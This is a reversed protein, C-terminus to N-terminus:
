QPDDTKPAANPEAPVGPAPPVPNLEVEEAGGRTPDPLGVHPTQGVAVFLEFQAENYGVLVRILAERADILLEVSNITELPLGEGGRTRNVEERAGDVATQLRRQALRLQERRARSRVFADGVERGIQNQTLGRVAIARDREARRQKQLALNGMGLNQLTWYAMVDFDARGGLREWMTQGAYYQDSGGGGFAGGSAGASLTPLWPRAYEQRLRYDSASIDAARAAMEPRAVHAMAILQQVDYEPNVLEVLEIAGANTKLRWSPDLHLTRSLEAAAVVVEEQAQHERSHLLLAETRARNYDGVRGQGSKAFAATALVVQRLDDESHRFAELAGEAAVLDLYRTVVNLLQSNLIAHSESTRSSVVQGASLPAFIADGVHGFIRVAPIALTEAALTRAGGGFYLAQETLNRMQGFSTQLNGQHLHYNFGANLSPLMMSLAETRLALAEVIAQRGLAITPNSAEALRLATPLDILQDEGASPIVDERELGVLANATDNPDVDRTDTKQAPLPRDGALPDDEPLDVPRVLVDVPPKGLAVYLRFQAENYDLISDLYETRSRYLLRLSDVTELPRGELAAARTLDERFAETSAQIALECARIRAYRAHTAAYASAVQSRVLDLAILEEFDASRLRSATAQIMARNGVGLNRLTWYAMVDLDQRSRGQGFRPTGRAFSGSGLPQSVVDSGGAEGGASFGLFVTPSFPLLKASELNLLAQAIGARRAQLEPRHILAIALLEPLPIPDPVVSMPLVFKETAMLRSSPDLHLLRCLKASATLLAGDARVLDGEHRARETAARDADAQSGQGTKAYAATIRALERSNDLTQAVISRLGQARVLDTYALAVELLVDQQVTRNESSAKDVAKQSALYNYIAETINLNWVVGPINVSGAAIAVAGAGLYLADRRVSLINGTSQQLVGRHLDYSGGYNLTPLFQVAALQRLAVSELVRQQSALINNNQVGALQLASLLNIPTYNQDLLPKLAEEPPITGDGEAEIAAKAPPVDPVPLGGEAPPEIPVPEEHQVPVVKRSERSRLVPPKLAPAKEAAPSNPRNRVARDAAEVPPRALAAVTWLCFAALVGWRAFHFDRSNRIM